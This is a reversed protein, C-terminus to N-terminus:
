HMVVVRVSSNRNGSRCRVSYIGADWTQTFITSRGDGYQNSFVRKGDPQFVEILCNASESVRIEFRDNAPNPYINVSLGSETDPLGGTTSVCGLRNSISQNAAQVVVASLTGIPSTNINVSDIQFQVVPTPSPLGPVLCSGALATSDTFVLGIEPQFGATNMQPPIVGILPGAGAFVLRGDPLRHADTAQMVVDRSWQVTGSTDTRFVSGGFAHQTTFLFGNSGDKEMRFGPYYTPALGSPFAGVQFPYVTWNALSTDGRLLTVGDSQYIYVYCTSGEVHVASGACYSSTISQIRKSKLVAGNPSIHMLSAAGSFPNISESFGTVICSGDSLVAAGRGVNLYNL